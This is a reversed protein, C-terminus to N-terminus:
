FMKLSHVIIKPRTASPTLFLAVPRFDCWSGRPLPLPMKFPGGSSIWYGSIPPAVVPLDAAIRFSFCM